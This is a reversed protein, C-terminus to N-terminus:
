QPPIQEDGLPRKSGRRIDRGILLKDKTLEIPPQYYPNEQIRGHRLVLPHTALVDMVQAGSLRRLDYICLLTCDYKPPLLNCKAEYDRLEESGAHGRSAWDMIGSARVRRGHRRAEILAEHLLGMMRDASFPGNTYTEESTLVRFSSDAVAEDVAIGRATMQRCHDEHEVADVVTVVQEGRQIGELYFPVVVDYQEDRSDFFACIHEPKELKHGCLSVKRELHM